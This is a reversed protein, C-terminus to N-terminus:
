NPVVFSAEVVEKLLRAVGQGFLKSVVLNPVRTMALSERWTRQADTGGNTVQSEMDADNRYVLLM